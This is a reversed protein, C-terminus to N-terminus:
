STKRINVIDDGRDQIITPQQNRAELLDPYLIKKSFHISTNITKGLQVESLISFKRRKNTRRHVNKINKFIVEITHIIVFHTM